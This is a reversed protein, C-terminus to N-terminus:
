CRTNNSVLLYHVSLNQNNEVEGSCVILYASLSINVLLTHRNEVSLTLLNQKEAAIRLCQALKM